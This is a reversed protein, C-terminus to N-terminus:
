KLRLLAKRECGSSALVKTSTISGEPGRVVEARELKKNERKCCSGWFPCLMGCTNECTSLLPPVTVQRSTSAMSKRVCGESSNIKLVVLHLASAHEAQSVPDVTSRELAEWDRPNHQPMPICWGLHLIKCKNRNCSRLGDPQNPSSQIAVGSGQM